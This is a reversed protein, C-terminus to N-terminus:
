TPINCIISEQGCVYKDPMSVVAEFETIQQDMADVQRIYQDFGRSKESQKEMFVRLGSAVDGFGNYEEAVRQNM